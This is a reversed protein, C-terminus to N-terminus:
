VKIFQLLSHKKFLYVLNSEMQFDINPSKKIVILEGGM